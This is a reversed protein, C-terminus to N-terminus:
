ETDGVKRIPVAFPIVTKLMSPPIDGNEYHRLVGNETHIIQGEAGRKNLLYTSIELQLPEYKRPVEEIEPNYPFAKELIKAGALMLYTSLVDDSDDTNGMLRLANIKEITTMM